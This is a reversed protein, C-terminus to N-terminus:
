CALAAESLIAFKSDLWLGLSMPLYVGLLCVQSTWPSVERLGLQITRPVKFTFRLLHQNWQTKRALESSTSPPKGNTKKGHRHGQFSAIVAKLTPFIKAKGLVVELSSWTFTILEAAVVSPTLTIFPILENLTILLIKNKFFWSDVSQPWSIAVLM